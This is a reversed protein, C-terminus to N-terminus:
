VHKIWVYVWLYVYILGRWSGTLSILCTCYIHIEFKLYDTSNLVHLTMNIISQYAILRDNDLHWHKRKHQSPPVCYPFFNSHQSSQAEVSISHEINLKFYSIVFFAFTKKYANLPLLHINSLMCNSISPIQMVRGGEGDFKTQM